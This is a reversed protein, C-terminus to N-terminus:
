PKDKVFQDIPGKNGLDLDRGNQDASEFEHSCSVQSATSVAETPSLLIVAVTWFMKRQKRIKLIQQQLKVLM